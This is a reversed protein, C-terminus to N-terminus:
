FQGAMSTRRGGAPRAIWYSPAARDFRLRLADRGCLRMVIAVPTVVGFFLVGFAFRVLLRAIPRLQPRRPEASEPDIM